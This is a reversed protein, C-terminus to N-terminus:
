PRIGEASLRMRYLATRATVYLTKGDADGFALNSIGVVYSVARSYDNEEFLVTGLHKGQPSIIWLGGPGTCFINGKQDVKIGDPYGASKDASMDSVTHPNALTGDPQVDLRIVQLKLTDAIYLLREGPAFALGNPRVISRHQAALRVKGDKILYISAHGEGPVKERNGPDTFYLTGDSRYVLDNPRVFPKGEYGSALISRKGDSELRIIQQDGTQVYVIRGQPDVTIGNAIDEVFTSVKADQSSWKFIAKMSSASFLLYGGKRVWVPGENGLFGDALKEVRAGPPVIDDLAPDLRVVPNPVQAQVVLGLTGLMALLVSWLM